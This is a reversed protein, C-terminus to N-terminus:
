GPRGKRDRKVVVGWKGPGVTHGTSTCVPLFYLPSNLLPPNHPSTLCYGLLSPSVPEAGVRKATVRKGLLLHKSQRGPGLFGDEKFSIEGHVSGPFRFTM